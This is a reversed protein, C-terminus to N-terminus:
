QDRLKMLYKKLPGWFKPHVGNGGIHNHASLPVYNENGGGFNLPKIHHIQTGQSWRTKWNSYLIEKRAQPLSDMLITMNAKNLQGTLLNKETPELEGFIYNWKRAGDKLNSDDVVVLGAEDLQNIRSWEADDLNTMWKLRSAPFARRHERYNEGEDPDKTDVARFEGPKEYGLNHAEAITYSMPKSAETESEKSEGNANQYQLKNLVTTNESILESDIAGTRNTRSFNHIMVNGSEDLINVVDPLVEEAKKLYLIM